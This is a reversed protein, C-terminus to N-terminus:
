RDAGMCLVGGDQLSLFLRGGAAIMGDFVPPVDLKQEGLVRGDAASIALLVGGARGEFAAMPDDTDVVDPPGAAFLVGGAAVMARVRVPVWRHWKPPRSRTFGMGKDRHATRHDLVPENDNDDALLLYGKDAPVFQPSLGWRAPFAQVSYTTTEDVCLIQGAKAALNAIQFGPWTESYMWFTRHWWSDDLFGGTAFVHRGVKRTGMPGRKVGNVAFDDYSNKFVDPYVYPEKSIDMGVISQDEETHVFPAPQKVLNADLKIQGLYLYGGEAVLLDSRTGEVYFSPLYPETTTANALGSKLTDLRAQHLVQGTAPDLGYVLIGGDLFTSRGATCYVTGQYVLVSGHVRWASELQGFAGILREEPAARFRWALRGDSARLCYVWGDAGGFLVRGQYVTPPSDIPGDATYQWLHAGDDASLAHLTHGAKSSVYVRGDAAVPPTLRGGLDVQWRKEPEALVKCATAGTRRADHRYTPWDLSHHTIFAPHDIAQDYAPGRQLRDAAPDAAIARLEKDSATTFANLGNLMAGGYCFCQHPPAYLMGGSPMVGYRCPGRVWDNACHNDDTLSVFEAGRFQTIIFRDTAKSRYCRLHHGRSQVSSADITKTPEGTSLDYGAIGQSAAHWVRGRTVFLDHPRMSGGGTPTTWLTEGTELARAVIRSGEGELVLDGHIIFTKDRARKATPRASSARWQETGDALDLCVTEKNNNYVVRGEAVALSQALFQDERVRWRVRGSDADVAAISGSTKRGDRDLRALRLVLTGGCLLIEQTGETGDITRLTKGTAADLVSLPGEHSLTAYLREGDAVIRRPVSPPRGRMGTGPWEDARWDRLPRKWLLVGNFADRGFLTWREPLRETVGPVGLDIVYFVRGGGSVMACFSSIFEHSRCWPPGVTWQLRRPPGVQSDKAVANNSADHLFHTWEDIDEPWPKVIKTWTRGGIEIKEGRTGSGRGKGGVGRERAGQGGAGSILAVGGPVLARLVEDTALEGLEEAVLLNVINEAYPLRRGDFQRASVRGYLGLAHLHARTREVNEADADLGQVVFSDGACLAATLRGDGCGVHVVLGGRVGAAEPIGAAVEDGAAVDIVSLAAIAAATLWRRPLRSGRLRKPQSILFGPARANNLTM